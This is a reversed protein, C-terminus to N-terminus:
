VDEKEVIYPMTNGHDMGAMLTPSISNTDYVSTAQHNGFLGGLKNVEQLKVSEQISM